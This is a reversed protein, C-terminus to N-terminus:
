KDEQIDQKLRYDRIIEHIWKFKFKRVAIDLLFFVTALILFLIRPDYIYHLYPSFSAFINLVDEIVVGDGLSALSDLLTQEEPFEDYEKSYSFTKYTVLSATLAGNADKKEISIEYLGPCVIEFTFRTYNSAAVIPVTNNGSYYLVAEESLPTIRVEVTDGEQFKTYINMQTKYNDEDYTIELENSVIEHTPFLNKVVNFIFTQGTPNNIFDASWIGSLDSMFSGVRGEGFQWQAYIPVFYEGILPVTADSKARTGYYGTLFPMDAQNINAVVKTYENIQPTFPEGYAIEEIAENMLDNYMLQGIDGESDNHYVGNGRQAAERMAKSDGGIEIISMSIGAEANIDIFAGYQDLKDSPQGDSVLIIHRSKVNVSLLAKGAREIAGSFVTGGGNEPINRIASRIVERQSVPTLRAEESYSTELTMIGCYDRTSLADLCSEAGLKAAELKSGEGKGMSGSRDIIIMVAIPPTYEVVQVPLMQQFLTGYMDERNYAHPILNGQSDYADNSGGVTFLGGGLDHVYTYLLDDFGLPMDSNAINVLIVQEYETLTEIDKPIADLDNEISIVNVNYQEELLGSLMSAENTDKEIILINDFSYLYVYSYYQNNLDLTDNEVSLMFRLSHLGDSDFTIPVTVKQVNEKIEFDVVKSEVANDFVTVSAGEINGGFNNQLSLVIEAEEGVAMTEEPTEVGIIQAEPKEKNPFCITDVKIGTAAIGRIVNLAKGDTEIGDSILVIKATEPKTFLESAYTLASAIDTASTNPETQTELYQRYVEKTDTSLPAVYRQTYGFTVIGIKYDAGSNTLVDQIFSDKEEKEDYNSYSADVLLIIENDTNAVDYSFTMGSLVAICLVMVLGHLIISVIRNRTRRYKKAMRFYPLFTLAVAPILLLLLWPNSFSIRFNTM